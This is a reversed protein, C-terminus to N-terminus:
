DGRLLDNLLKGGGVSNTLATMAFGREPVFLFEAHQGPFDGSHEAVRVGEATRRLEWTVGVGELEYQVAGGPGPDSRMALLAQRTLLPTGNAAAGDGLHFRAYRMMDRASAIIGGTPHVSRLMTWLAPQVVLRDDVVAHSAALNYGVLTDTFFGSHTMG